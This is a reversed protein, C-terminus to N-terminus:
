WTTSTSQLIEPDHNSMLYARGDATFNLAEFERKSAFGTWRVDAPTLHGNGALGAVPLSAISDDSVLYLRDNQPNYAMSQVRTGPGHTLVQRTLRFHVADQGITGQYIYVRSASPRTWFYAHGQRDFTLVHGGPVAFHGARLRFHIQKVPRLTQPSIRQLVGEQNIPVRPASERDCWMYFQGDQWNYALSQGHGTTFAPGIKIASRIAKERASRAAKATYVRKASPRTWFYARGSRDFTLVHGGPVAMRRNRLRFRIQHNPRLTHTSIRNIYGYQNTPVRPKSERDCWMYLHHDHWNYALSQGHGTIFTPGVKIASRIARERASHAAKKTYVKQLQRATVHHAKLWKQDFRVVRGRNHWNTPCYVVYIYRGVTAMSQPNGWAQHHYGPSPLLYATKFTVRVGQTGRITNRGHLHRAHKYHRPQHWMKVRYDNLLRTRGSALASARQHVIPMAQAGLTLSLGAGLALVAGWIKRWHM